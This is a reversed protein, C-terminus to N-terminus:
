FNNTSLNPSKELKDILDNARTTTTLNNKWVFTDSGNAMADNCKIKYNDLELRSFTITGKVMKTVIKLEEKNRRLVRVFVM